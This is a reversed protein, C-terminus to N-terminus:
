RRGAARTREWAAIGARGAAEDEYQALGAVGVAGVLVGNVIIPEGGGVLYMKNPYMAMIGFYRDPRDKALQSLTETTQRQLAAAYAKGEAYLMNNASVGDMRESAVANGASDVVMVAMLVNRDRAYAIAGDIIARADALTISPPPLKSAPAPIPAPAQAAQALGLGGLMLALSLIAIAHSRFSNITIMREERMM